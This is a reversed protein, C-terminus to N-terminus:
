QTTDLVPILEDLSRFNRLFPEQASAFEAWTGFFAVRGEHLFVIRDALRRALHTDHTVVVSTKHFKEKLKVILNGVHASMIPDVMTTPEDYLIAEPDQALARGIAVARKMGTSLESPLQGAVESVELTALLEQVRQDIEEPALEGRAELPFAVNEAVTLSDFLAGSQFVMTVRRRVDELEAESAATIEQGGVFIRGSDARLFGMIHKLCVSKGVGSRGLIVLTEGQDAHFSVDDLIVREDFAKSVNRFEIFHDSLDPILTGAREAV